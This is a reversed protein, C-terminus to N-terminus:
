DGPEIACWVTGGAVEVTRQDRCESFQSRRQVLMTVWPVNDEAVFRVGGAVVDGGQGGREGGHRVGRQLQLGYKALPGAGEGSQAQDVVQDRDGGRWQAAKHRRVRM